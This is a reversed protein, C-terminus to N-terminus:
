ARQRYRGAEARLSRDKGDAAPVARVVATSSAAVNGPALGLFHTLLSVRRTVTMSITYHDAGVRMAVIEENKIGCLRAYSRATSEAVAPNSPLYAAAAAVATDTSKQLQSWNAYLVAIDTGFALAGILAPLALTLIIATQARQYSARARM